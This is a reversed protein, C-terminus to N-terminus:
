PYLLKSKLCKVQQEFHAINISPCNALKKELIELRKLEDLIDSKKVNIDRVPSVFELHESGSAVNQTFETLKQIAM